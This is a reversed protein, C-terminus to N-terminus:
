PLWRARAANREYAHASGLEVRLAPLRMTWIYLDYEESLGMAGSMQHTERVIEGAVLAAHAAAAAADSPAAGTAAAHRTLWRAGEVGVYLEALRHQLAQLSGLPRGFQRRARLHEVTLRLASEMTGVTEAAIAIQWWSLWSGAVPSMGRPEARVSALPYGFMSPVPEIEVDAPGLPVGRVLLSDAALAYRVLGSSDDPVVAITRPRPGAFAVPAVLARAGAPVCGAARAVAETVLVAELPGAGEADLDLFGGDLLASMLVDDFGGADRVWRAREPGAHRDLLQEVAAVLDAQEPSPSFDV